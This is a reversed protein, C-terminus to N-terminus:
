IGDDKEGNDPNFIYVSVLEPRIVKEEWKYGPRIHGAVMRDLGPDNTEIKSVIRQCTSDFAESECTFPMLGEWAFLEELDNAINDLFALIKDTTESEIPKKKYHDSFKRIDDVIKIIDIIMRHLYKKLLGERYLQLERHLGDIIKEKHADYKIKSEFASALGELDQKIKVLVPSAQADEMSVAPTETGDNLRDREEIDGPFDYTFAPEASPSEPDDPEVQIRFKFDDDFSCSDDGM